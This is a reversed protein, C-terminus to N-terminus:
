GVMDSVAEAPAEETLQRLSTLILDQKAKIRENPGGIAVAFKSKGRKAPLLMAIAGAGNTTEGKSYAYGHRRVFAVHKESQPATDRWHPNPSEAQTRRIIKGIERDSEQALLTWGTSCCCLPRLIGSAVHLRLPDASVQVMLYQAHIGNRMALISSEGTKAAIEPLLEPVPGVQQEQSHLWTGLLTIRPTPFYNREREDHQLYGLAVLSKVLMSTSSQPIELGETLEMITLPRQSEAFLEFVALARAASKIPSTM